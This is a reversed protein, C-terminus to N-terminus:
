VSGFHKRLLALNRTNAKFFFADAIDGVVPVLGILLDAVINLVMRAILRPSAGLHAGEIVPYLSLMASMLDGLGPILGLVADLGVRREILPVEISDELWYAVREARHLGRRIRENAARQGYFTPLSRRLVSDM